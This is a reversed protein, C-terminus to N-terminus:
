YKLESVMSSVLKLTLGFVIAHTHMQTVLALGVSCHQPRQIQKWYLWRKLNVNMYCVFANPNKLKNKQGSPGCVSFTDLSILTSLDERHGTFCLTMQKNFAFINTLLPKFSNRSGALRCHVDSALIFRSASNTMISKIHWGAHM